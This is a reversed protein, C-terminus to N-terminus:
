NFYKTRYNNYEEMDRMERVWGNIRPNGQKQPKNDKIAKVVESMDVSQGGVYVLKEGQMAKMLQMHPIIKTGKKLYTISETPPTLSFTGDPEIRGEMGEESVRAYGEPSNMTGKAYKPLPTALITALQVAGLAGIVSALAIGVIPVTLAEAVAIATAQIVRAISVARDFKAQDQRIKKEKQSILEKQAQVQADLLKTKDAKEQQSLNSSDIAKKEKDANADIQDSQEQLANLQNTYGADVVTQILTIAADALEKEKEALQKRAQEVRKVNAIKTDTVLNDKQIQLKTLDDTSKQLDKASGFGLAVAAAQAKVVAEAAAVQVNAREIAAGQEIKLLDDQYQNESIKRQTRDETLKSVAKTRAVDISLLKQNQADQFDSVEQALGGKLLALAREQDKTVEDNIQKQIQASKTQKDKKIQLIDAREKENIARIKLSNDGADARQEASSQKILNVSAKEYKDLAAFRDQYGKTQNSIIEEQTAKERELRAKYIAIQDKSAASILDKRKKDADVDLKAIDANYKAEIVAKKDNTLTVDNLDQNLQLGLIQKQKETFSILASQRDSYSKKEDNVISDSLEAQRQATIKQLEVANNAIREQIQLADGAIDGGAKALKQNSKLIDNQYFEISKQINKINREIGLRSPDIAGAFGEAKINKALDQTSFVNGLEKFKEALKGLYGIAKPQEDGLNLLLRQQELLEKNKEILGSQGAQIRSNLLLAENYKRYAEPLKTVVDSISKITGFYTPSVKNLEEIIQQQREQTPNSKQLEAVLVQVRSAQEAYNENTKKQLEINLGFTSEGGKIIEIVKAIGTGLLLFFTGIGFNPLINALTRVAGFARSAYNGVNDRYNGLQNNLSNVQRSLQNARDRAAIFEDSRDGLTAGITRAQAIAADRDRVLRNYMDSDRERQRALRAESALQRQDAAIERSAARERQQAERQVRQEYRDFARERQQQLRLEAVRARETNDVVVRTAQTSAQANRQYERFNSSRGLEQNLLKAQKVSNALALELVDLDGITDNIQGKVTSRDIIDDIRDNNNAM